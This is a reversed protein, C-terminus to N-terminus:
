IKRGLIDSLGFKKVLDMADHVNGGKMDAYIRITDRVNSRMIRYVEGLNTSFRTEHSIKNVDVGFITANGSTIPALGLMSKLLTTKGSGNSGVIVTKEDKLSFSVGDVAKYSYRKDYRM